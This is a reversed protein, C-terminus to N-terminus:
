SSLVLCSWVLCSVVHRSSMVLFCFICFVVFCSHLCSLMYTSRISRSVAWTSWWLSRWYFMFLAMCPEKSSSSLALCSLVLSCFVFLCSSNTKQEENNKTTVGNNKEQSLFPPRFPSHWNRSCILFRCSFFLCYLLVFYLGPWLRFLFFTRISLGGFCFYTLLLIHAPAKGFTRVVLGAFVEM